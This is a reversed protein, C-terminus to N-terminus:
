NYDIIGNNEKWMNLIYKITSINWLDTGIKQVKSKLFYYVERLDNEFIKYELCDHYEDGEFTYKLIGLDVTTEKSLLIIRSISPSIENFASEKYGDDSRKAYYSLLADLIEEYINNYGHLRHSVMQNVEHVRYELLKILYNIGQKDGQKALKIAQKFSNYNISQIDNKESEYKKNFEMM